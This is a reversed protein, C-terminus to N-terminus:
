SLDIKAIWKMEKTCLDDNEVVELIQIFFNEIGYKNIARQLKQSHHTNNRLNYFHRQMRAKINIASGVYFKNTISCYIAYVGKLSDINKIDFFTYTNRDVIELLAEVKTSGKRPITESGEEYEKSSLLKAASKRDRNM